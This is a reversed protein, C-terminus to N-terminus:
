LDSSKSDGLIAVGSNSWHRKLYKPLKGVTM